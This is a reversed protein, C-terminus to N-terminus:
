MQRPLEWSIHRPSHDQSSGYSDLLVVYLFAHFLKLSHCIGKVGSDAATATGRMFGVIFLIYWRTSGNDHIDGASGWLGGLGGGDHRGNLSGAEAAVDLDFEDVLWDLTNEAVAHVAALDGAAVVGVITNDNVVLKLENRTREGYSKNQGSRKGGM